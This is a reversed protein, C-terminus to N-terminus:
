RNTSKNNEYTIKKISNFPFVVDGDHTKARVYNTHYLVRYAKVPGDHTHVILATAPPTSLRLSSVVFAIDELVEELFMLM